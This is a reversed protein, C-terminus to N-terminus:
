ESTLMELEPFYNRYRGADRTLLPVKLVSAHAGIFFDPLASKRAGGQRRYERFAVAARFAASTPLDLYRLGMREIEADCAAESAFGLSFESYVIANIVLPGRRSARTLADISREMWRPDASAIDILINTDVFTM